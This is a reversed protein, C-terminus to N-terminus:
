QACSIMRVSIINSTCYEFLVVIVVYQVTSVATLGCTNAEPMTCIAVAVEKKRCELVQLATGYTSQRLLFLTELRAPRTPCRTLHTGPRKEFDRLVRSRRPLLM